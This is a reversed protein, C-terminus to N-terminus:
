TDKFSAFQVIYLNKGQFLAPTGALLLFLKETQYFANDARYGKGCSHMKREYDKELHSKSCPFNQNHSTESYISNGKGWKGRQTAYLKHLVKGQMSLDSIFRTTKRTGIDLFYNMVVCSYSPIACIQKCSCISLLLGIVDTRTWLSQM